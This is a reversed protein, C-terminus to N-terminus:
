HRNILTQLTVTYPALHGGRRWSVTVVVTKTDLFPADTSVTVDRKFQPHGTITNYGEPAYSGTTISAYPAQKIAELKEQALATATTLRKSFSLTKTMAISMASLGLFGISMVVLAILVELLTFGVNNSRLWRLLWQYM